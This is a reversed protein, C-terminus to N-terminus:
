KNVSMSARPAALTASASNYMEPLLTCALADCEFWVYRVGARMTRRTPICCHICFSTVEYQEADDQIRSESLKRM